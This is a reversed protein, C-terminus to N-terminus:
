STGLTECRAKNSQKEELHATDLLGKAEGRHCRIPTPWSKSFSSRRADGPMERIAKKMEEPM